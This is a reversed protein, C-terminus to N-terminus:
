DSENTQSMAQNLADSLEDIQTQTFRTRGAFRAARKTWAIELGPPLDELAFALEGPVGLFNFEDEDVHIDRTEYTGWKTIRIPTNIIAMSKDDEAGNDDVPPPVLLWCMTAGEGSQRDVYVLHRTLYRRHKGNRFMVSPADFVAVQSNKAIVSVSHLQQENTRLIQRGIFGLTVGLESAKDSSVIIRGAPGDASYGVGIQLLEYRQGERNAPDSLVKVGAMITLSCKTAADRITGSVASVDGSNIRPSAVLVQRNWVSEDTSEVVRTGPEILRIPVPELVSDPKEKSDQGKSDQAPCLFLVSLLVACFLVRPMPWHINEKDILRDNQMPDINALTGMSEYCDHIKRHGEGKGFGTEAQRFGM